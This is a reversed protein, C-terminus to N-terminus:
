SAFGGDKLLFLFDEEDVLAVMEKTLKIEKM